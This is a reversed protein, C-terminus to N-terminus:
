GRTTRVRSLHWARVLLPVPDDIAVDGHAVGRHPAAARLAQRRSMAGRRVADRLHKLDGEVWRYATGVQARLLETGLDAGTGCSLRCTIDPLNVGARVALPMSGYVRPNIDIVHDGLLQVQFIGDYGELLAPLRGELTHDPAVTVAACAVGCDPPWTRLYGQHVAARLRGNWIVGAVARLPDTLFRQVVVPGADRAPGLDAPRDARWATPDHSSRRNVPKVVVPYSLQQARDLLAAGTEYLEEPIRPFGARAARRAVEAKDVLPAGPWGLALLAADSAPLVVDFRHRSRLEAVADRYAPDAVEPARHRAASFRSWGAVSTTGTTTVHVEHGARGLARVASLASRNQGNGGDTVLVRLDAPFPSDPHSRASL